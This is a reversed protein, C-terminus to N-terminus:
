ARRSARIDGMTAATILFATGLASNGKAIQSGFIIFGLVYIGVALASRKGTAKPEQPLSAPLPPPKAVHAVLEPVQGARVWQSFNQQWVLVDAANSDQSLIKKLEDFTLPGISKESQAYYWVDSTSTNNEALPSQRATM